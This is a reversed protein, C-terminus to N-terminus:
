KTYALTGGKIGGCGGRSVSGNPHICVTYDTSNTRPPITANGPGPTRLRAGVPPAPRTVSRAVDNRRDPICVAHASTALCGNLTDYHDGSSKLKWALAPSATGALIATAIIGLTLRKM